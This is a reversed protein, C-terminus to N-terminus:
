SVLDIDAKNLILRMLCRRPCPTPAVNEFHGDLLLTVLRNARPRSDTQRHGFWRGIMTSFLRMVCIVAVIRMAICSVGFDVLAHFFDVILIGWSHILTSIIESWLFEVHRISLWLLMRKITNYNPSVTTQNTQNSPTERTASLPQHPLYHAPAPESISAILDRSWAEVAAKSGGGGGGGGCGGNRWLM